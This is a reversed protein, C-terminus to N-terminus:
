HVQLRGEAHHGNGSFGFFSPDALGFVAVGGTDVIVVVPRNDAFIEHALDELLATAKMIVADVAETDYSGIAYALVALELECHPLELDVAIDYFGYTVHGSQGQLADLAPYIQEKLLRASEDSFCRIRRTLGDPMFGEGILLATMGFEEVGQPADM